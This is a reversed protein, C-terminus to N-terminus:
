YSIIFLINRFKKGNQLFLDDFFLAFINFNLYETFMLICCVKIISQDISFRLIPIPLIPNINPLEVLHWSFNINPLGNQTAGLVQVEYQEGPKLGLFLFNFIFNYL